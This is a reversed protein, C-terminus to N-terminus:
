RVCAVARGAGTCRCRRAQILLLECQGRSWYGTGARDKIWVIATRYGFGWAAMVEVAFPLRPMTAWLFLVCYEAAPVPVAKIEELPM